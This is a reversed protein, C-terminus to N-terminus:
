AGPGPRTSRPTPRPTPRAPSPAPRREAHQVLHAAAGLSQAGRQAAGRQRGLRHRPQLRRAGSGLPPAVCPPPGIMSQQGSPTPTAGRSPASCRPRTAAAASAEAAAARWGARLSDQRLRRRAAPALRRHRRRRRRRRRGLPLPCRRHRRPSATNSADRDVNWRRCPRPPGTCRPRNRSPRTDRPERSGRARSPPPCARTHPLLLPVPACAWSVDM